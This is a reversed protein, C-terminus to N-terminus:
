RRNTDTNLLNYKMSLDLTLSGSKMRWEWNGGITGPYNMRAKNDLHLIDQMPVIVTDCPSKFLAHIFADPAEERTRFGLTKMALDMTEKKASEAWGLITDNDHTGTYAVCNQTYNGPFHPNSEDGDFGFLMVKMGPYNCWKLLKEVREDEAVIPFDPLERRLVKFLNKGPGIIWKGNKANASGHRVSYYNAFGIFHDIRIMDYMEAMGKM